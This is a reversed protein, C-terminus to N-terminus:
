IKPGSGRLLLFWLLFRTSGHSSQAECHAPAELPAAPIGGGCTHKMNSLERKRLDLAGQGWRGHSVEEEYPIVSAAVELVKKPVNRKKLM